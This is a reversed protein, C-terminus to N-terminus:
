RQDEKYSFIPRTEKGWAQVKKKELGGLPEFDMATDVAMWFLKEEGPPIVATVPMRKTVLVRM